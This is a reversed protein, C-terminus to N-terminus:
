ERELTVFCLRHNNTSASDGFETYVFTVITNNQADHYTLANLMQESDYTSIEYDADLLNTVDEITTLDTEDGISIEVDEDARAYLYNIIGDKDTDIVLNDFKYKCDGAHRDSETYGSLDIEEIPDGLYITDFSIDELRYSTEQAEYGHYSLEIQISSSAHTYEGKYTFIEIDYSCIGNANALFCVYEPFKEDSYESYVPDDAYSFGSHFEYFDYDENGTYELFVICKPHLIDYSSESIYYTYSFDGDTKQFKAYGPLDEKGQYLAAYTDPIEEPTYWHSFTTTVENIDTNGTVSATPLTLYLTAGIVCIVTGSVWLTTVLVGIFVSLPAPLKKAKVGTRLQKNINRQYIGLYIASIVLTLVITGILILGLLILM